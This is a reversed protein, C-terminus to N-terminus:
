LPAFNESEPNWAELTGDFINLYWGHLCVAGTKVAESIFPFTHLNKISLRVAQRESERLLDDGSLEPNLRLAQEHAEGLLDTWSSIFEGSDKGSEQKQVMAAVGGCHAHGIIIIHEVKLGTVAFELAASTGHYLGGTEYPPVLAAVNRVSFVDGPKTQLVIAPDVRSDSCAVVAFRPNQGHSLQDRYLDPEQEYYHERFKRFGSVLTDIKHAECKTTNM